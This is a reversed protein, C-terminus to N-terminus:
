RQRYGGDARLCRRLAGGPGSRPHPAEAVGSLERKTSVRRRPADPYEAAFAVGAGVLEDLVIATCRDVAHDIADSVLQV